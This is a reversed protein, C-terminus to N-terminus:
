TELITITGKDPDVLVQVAKANVTVVPPQGKAPDAGVYIAVPKKIWITYQM